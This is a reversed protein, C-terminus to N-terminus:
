TAPPTVRAAVSPSAPMTQAPRPERRRASWARYRRWALAIGTWVLLAAGASALGAVTQGFLGLVEGTHAFRLISRMRAGPTRASFPKWSVVRGSARDVKLEGQKQPQGGTGRDITFALPADAAASLPLRISRWDAVKREAQVWAADIGDLSISDASSEGRGEPRPGASAQEGRGEGAPRRAGASRADGAPRAGGGTRAPAGGEGPPGSRAPPEEGYARYVANGAWPYSIVVGSLVVVFLPVFGWIGTVNHWNFDRAKPRLRRRYWLVDLFAKKTWRRPWWLYFGSAVLFLFGLNAADLIGKGWARSEGKRGLWRHWDTVVSFFRRTAASGNGLVAGTYPNVFVTRERGFAVEAPARPSRRVTLTTPTGREAQRVRAVLQGAPLRTGNAPPSVEYERTNAWAVIQRQYTLLVGTVSMLLVAAGATVGVALHLWFLVKRFLKM